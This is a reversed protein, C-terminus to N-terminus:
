QLHIILINDIHQSRYLCDCFFRVLSRGNRIPERQHRRIASGINLTLHCVFRCRKRLDMPRHQKRCEPEREKKENNKKQVPIYEPLFFLPNNEKRACAIKKIGAPIPAKAHQQESHRRQGTKDAIQESDLFVINGTGNRHYGTGNQM